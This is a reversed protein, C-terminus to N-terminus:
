TRAIGLHELFLKVAGDLLQHRPRLIGVSQCVSEDALPIFACSARATLAMRPVISIGLGVAVMALITAFQGSEFVVNPQVRARKCAILTNERFCHGEKLLLFPEDKVQELNIQASSALSHNKSVVLYLPERFLEDCLCDQADVPLVCFALDIAGRRIRNLLEGKTAELATVRTHPYSAIFSSLCSPLVYPAISPIAGIALMEERTTPMSAAAVQRLISEARPLLREGSKTLRVFRPLREFLKAGLENELKRIQVSLTPQSIHAYEAGKTFSRTRAVACFYRLQHFEV